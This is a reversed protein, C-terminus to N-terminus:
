PKGALLLFPAITLAVWAIFAWDNWSLVLLSFWVLAYLQPM